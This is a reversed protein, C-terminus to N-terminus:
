RPLELCCCSSLCPIGLVHVLLRSIGNGERYFLFEGDYNADEGSLSNDKMTEAIDYRGLNTCNKGGRLVLTMVPHCILINFICDEEVLVSVCIKQLNSDLFLSNLVM